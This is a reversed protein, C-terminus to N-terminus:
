GSWWQLVKEIKQVIEGELLTVEFPLRIKMVEALLVRLEKLGSELGKDIMMGKDSM